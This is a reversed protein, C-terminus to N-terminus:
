GGKIIGYYLNELPLFYELNKAEKVKPNAYYEPPMAYYLFREGVGSTVIMPTGKNLDKQYNSPFRLTLAETTIGGSVTRAIAFDEKPIVWLQLTASMGRILPNKGSPETELNGVFIATESKCGIIECFTPKSKNVIRVGLWEDLSVMIDSDKRAWPGIVNMDKDEVGAIATGEREERYLYQDNPGLVTGADGTWVLTGGTPELAYEMLARMPKTEM